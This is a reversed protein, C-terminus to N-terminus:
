PASPQRNDKKSKWLVTLNGHNDTDPADYRGRRDDDHHAAYIGPITSTGRPSRTSQPVPTRHSTSTPTRITHPDFYPSKPIETEDRNPARIYLKPPTQPTIRDLSNRSPSELYIMDCPNQSVRSHRGPSTPTRGPAVEGNNSFKEHIDDAVTQIPQAIGQAILPGGHHLFMAPWVLYDFKNGAYTYKRFVETNFESGRDLRDLFTMPPDQVCM